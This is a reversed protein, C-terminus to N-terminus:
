RHNLKRVEEDHMKGIRKLTQETEHRLRRLENKRRREAWWARIPEPLLSKRPPKAMPVKVQQPTLTVAPKQHQWFLRPMKIAPLKPQQVPRAVKDQQAVPKQVHLVKSKNRTGTGRLRQLLGSVKKPLSRQQASMGQKKTDPSWRLGEQRATIAKVRVVPKGFFWHRKNTGAKQTRAPMVLPKPLTLKPVVAKPVAAKPEAKPLKFKNLLQGISLVPKKLEAKKPLSIPKVVPKQVTTKQTARRFLGFAIPKAVPKAVQPGIKQKTSHQTWRHTAAKFNAMFAKTSAPVKRVAGTYFLLFYKPNLRSRMLVRLEAEGSKIKGRTSVIKDQQQFMLQRFTAEDIIRKFYQHEAQVRSEVFASEQKKLEKLTLRLQRYPLAIQTVAYFALLVFAAGTAIEERNEKLFAQIRVGLIEVATQSVDSAAAQISTQLTQINDNEVAERANILSSEAGELRKELAETRAGASKYKSIEGRIQRVADSLEKIKTVLPSEEVVVKFDKVNTKDGLAVTVTIVYTGPPTNLPVRVDIRFSRAEGAGVELVNVTKVQCCERETTITFSLPVNGKNTVSATVPTEEGQKLRLAAESLEFTFEKVEEGVKVIEKVVQTEAAAGGGGDAG